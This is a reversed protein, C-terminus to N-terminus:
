DHTGYFEGKLNETNLSKNSAVTRSYAQYIRGKFSEIAENIITASKSKRKVQENEEDWERPNIKHNLSIQLLQGIIVVRAYIPCLGKKDIRNHRIVFHVNFTNSKM